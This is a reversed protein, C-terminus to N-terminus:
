KVLKKIRKILDENDFPKKICDLVNMRKLREIGSKSFKAITLFAIKINKLKSDTRIKECLERGSMGPMFFDILALDPKIKKLKKLAEAGSQAKVIKYSEPELLDEILNLIDEEDDVLMITKEKM